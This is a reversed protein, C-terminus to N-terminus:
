CMLINEKARVNKIKLHPEFLKYDEENIFNNQMVFSQFSSITQNDM